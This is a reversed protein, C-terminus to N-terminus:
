IWFNLRIEEHNQNIIMKERYVFVNFNLSLVHILISFLDNRINLADNMQRAVISKWVENMAKRMAIFRQTIISSFANMEIM